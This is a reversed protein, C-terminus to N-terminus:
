PKGRIATTDAPVGLEALVERTHAGILPAPRPAGAPTGLLRPTPASQVIGDATSFTGRADNHPHAAAETLSLVPSVCAGQGDFAAVWDDRTRTVFIAELRDSMAPWAERDMQAAFLPDETLGLVRLTAAYFQPEACGVAVFGGDACRYTRYFPAAGDFPNVGRRDSWNGNAMLGHVMALQAATGDIMAADVVQGLGTRQAHMLATSFGLALLMGGGGMDAVLNLPVPPVEGPIGMAGLAGTLAIYNIDHGPEHALPGDQGWGTIRGYVLRANRALCTDPGLGLREAVGPRFGEILADATDILALATEVDAPDKLDLTLSRRNRHLVPHVSPRGELARRDIRIVDAGQDALLMGCFPGPGIGGLEVIRIGALAGTPTTPM